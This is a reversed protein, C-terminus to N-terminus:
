LPVDKGYTLVRGMDNSTRKDAVAKIVHDLLQVNCRPLPEWAKKALHMMKMMCWLRIDNLMELGLGDFEFRVNQIIYSTICRFM